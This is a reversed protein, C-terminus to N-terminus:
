HPVTTIKPGYEGNVAQKDFTRLLAERDQTAQDRPWGGDHHPRYQREEHIPMRAPRKFFSSEGIPRALRDFRVRMIMTLSPSGDEAITSTRNDSVTGSAAAHDDKFM